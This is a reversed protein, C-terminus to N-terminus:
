QVDDKEFMADFRDDLNKSLTHNYGPIYRINPAQIVATAYVLGFKALYFITALM